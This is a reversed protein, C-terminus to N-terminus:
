INMLLDTALAQLTKCYTQTCLVSALRHSFKADFKM